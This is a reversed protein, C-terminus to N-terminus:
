RGRRAKNVAFVIGARAAAQLLSPPADAAAAHLGADAWDLQDADVLVVAADASSAATVM